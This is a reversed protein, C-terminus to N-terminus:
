LKITKRWVENVMSLMEAVGDFLDWCHIEGLLKNSLKGSLFRKDQLVLGGDGM